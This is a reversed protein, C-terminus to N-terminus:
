PGGPGQPVSGAYPIPRREQAQPGSGRYLAREKTKIYTQQVLSDAKSVVHVYRDHPLEKDGPHEHVQGAALLALLLLESTAPIM